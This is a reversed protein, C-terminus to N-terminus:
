ATSIQQVETAKMKMEGKRYFSALTPELVAAGILSLFMGCIYLFLVELVFAAEFSDGSLLEGRRGESEM